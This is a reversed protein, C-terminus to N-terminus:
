RRKRSFMSVRANPRFHSISKQPKPQPNDEIEKRGYSTRPYMHNNDLFHLLAVAGLSAILRDFNGNESFAIIESLLHIDDITQVRKVMIEKEYDDEIVVDEELYKRFISIMRHKSQQPTWGYKRAIATSFTLAGKYDIHKELYTEELKKNELYTQYVGLDVDEASMVANYYEQLILMRDCM